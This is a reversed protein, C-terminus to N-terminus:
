DTQLSSLGLIWIVFKYSCSGLYSDANLCSHDMMRKYNDRNTGLTAVKGQINQLEQIKNHRSKYVVAM